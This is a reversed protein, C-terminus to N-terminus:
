NCTFDLLQLQNQSGIDCVTVALFRLVHVKKFNPVKDQGKPRSFLHLRCIEFLKSSSTAIEPGGSGV